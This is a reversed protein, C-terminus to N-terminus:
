HDLWVQCLHQPHTEPPSLCKSGALCHGYITACLRLLIFCSNVSDTLIIPEQLNIKEALELAERIGHLEAMMISTSNLLKYGFNLDKENLYIGISCDNEKKSADTFIFKDSDYKTL